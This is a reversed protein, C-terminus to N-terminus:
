RVQFYVINRRKRPTEKNGANDFGRAQARYKGPPLSVRFTHSWSTTGSARFLVPNRCNRFPTIRFVNNRRLFRCNLGQGRVKALSVSVRNVGSPCGAQDRSRGRLRVTDSGVALGRLSLNTIPPLRDACPTEQQQQQTQQQQEQQQQEQEQQQERALSGEFAGRDPGSGQPRDTERQDEEPHGKPDASDIAPSGALLGHTDTGGGNDALPGMQPDTNRMDNPADFECTDADELNYDASSAFTSDQPVNGSCNRQDEATNGAVISNHFISVAGFSGPGAVEDGAQGNEFTETAVGGGISDAGGPRVAENNAITSSEAFVGPIEFIFAPGLVHALGGKGPFGSFESDDADNDIGGGEGPGDDNGDSVGTAQNGSITTNELHLEDDNEIGGGDGEAVNGSVLSRILELKGRNSIAGGDGESHNGHLWVRIFRVDADPEFTEGQGTATRVKVAGGNSTGSVYGGTIALDLLDAESGTAFSIVRSENKADGNGDIATSRAGEGQITLTGSPIPDDTKDDLEGTFGAVELDGFDLEYTNPGLVITDDDESDNAAEVADRLSCEADPAASCEAGNGSPDDATTGPTYTAAGASGALALTFLAIFICALRPM